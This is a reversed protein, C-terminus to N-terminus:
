PEDVGAIGHADPLNEGGSKVNNGAPRDFLGSELLVIEVPFGPATIAGIIADIPQAEAMM